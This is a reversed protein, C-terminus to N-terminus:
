SVTFITMFTFEIPMLGEPALKLDLMAVYSYTNNLILALTGFISQEIELNIINYKRLM